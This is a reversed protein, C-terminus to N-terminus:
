YIKEKSNRKVCLGEEHIVLNCVIHKGVRHFQLDLFDIRQGKFRAKTNKAIWLGNEQNALHVDIDGPRSLRTFGLGLAKVFSEKFAFIMAYYEAKLSFKKSRRIEYATFVRNLFADDGNDIIRAMRDIEVIDVGVSLM